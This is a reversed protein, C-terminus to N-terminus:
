KLELLTKLMEDSVSILKTAAAYAHQFKILNTMEEDLSVASISDRMNSLRNVMVENFARSRSISSSTIGISGVMAHYYDEITANISGETNGNIRDCTWQSIEMSTYQLDTMALANTNDGATYSGNPDIRGAAIFEKDNVISNVDITGAGGNFFTNIGLAALFNSNDDAFGFAYDSGATFGLVASSGDVTVGTLGAGAIQNNIATALDSLSSGSNLGSLDISVCDISTSAPFTRDEIWLKFGDAIFQIESGFQLDGLDTSTQYTGTLTSGPEFLKLGVGQSHQQNVSWVFEKVMADLDLQYKAIIEDRMDLWGGLKGITMYNTIDVYVGSSDQWRVRDSNNGGLELEYSSDGQVLTCGRATIITISGSSQDFTKVDLYESLESVLTNRKDRLDNAIGNAEMRVIQDNLQAIENTIQNIKEIGVSVANTLDTEIQMLDTGVSNFQESLLVSHEYLAIRESVGSPNNSIDHWFNWFDSLMMSISTASNENFFGELIQMYNEMEKSSLMGAKEQMLQNEIFQDFSRVVQKTEVGRGIVLGESLLPQKPTLVPRQLSYGDTNVNAINHGTVGMGYQQAALASRAINLVMGLNSM